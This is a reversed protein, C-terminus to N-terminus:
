NTTYSNKNLNTPLLNCIYKAIKENKIKILFDIPLSALVSLVYCILLGWLLVLIPNKPLYLIKQTYEKSCNFFVCHFFWMQLSYKGIASIPVFIKKWPIVRVINIVAYIFMPAYVVDLNISIDILAISIYVMPQVKRGVFAVILLGIWLLVQLAKYKIGKKFFKDFVKEFVSYTAFLYGMAVVPFWSLISVLEDQIGGHLFGIHNYLRTIFDAGEICLLMAVTIHIKSLRDYVPLILMIEFYFVVYWCFWMVTRNFGFLQPFYSSVVFTGTLSAVVLLLHFIVIYNIWLDTTKRLSYACNKKSVFVYFYGTLFAFIPVCIKFPERFYNALEMLEPYEIGNIYWDPFTFFHHIFMCVLAIGKIINTEKRKIYSHEVM